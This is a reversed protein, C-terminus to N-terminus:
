TRHQLAMTRHRDQAVNRFTPYSQMHKTLIVSGGGFFVVTEFVGVSRQRGVMTFLRSPGLKM